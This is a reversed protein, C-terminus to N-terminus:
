PKFSLKNETMVVDKERREFTLSGFQKMGDADARNYDDMSDVSILYVVVKPVQGFESKALYERAYTAATAMIVNSADAGDRTLDKQNPGLDLVLVIYTGKDEVVRSEEAVVLPKIDAARSSTVGLLVVTLIMWIWSTVSSVWEDGRILEESM